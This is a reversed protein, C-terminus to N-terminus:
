EAIHSSVRLLLLAANYENGQKLLSPILLYSQLLALRHLACSFIRQYNRNRLGQLNGGPCTAAAGSAAFRGKAKRLIHLAELLSARASEFLGQQQQHQALAAASAAAEWPEGVFLALRNGISRLCENKRKKHYTCICCLFRM